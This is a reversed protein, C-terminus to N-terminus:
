SDAESLQWWLPELVGGGGLVAEAAGRQQKEPGVGEVRVGLNNM